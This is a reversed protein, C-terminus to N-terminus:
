QAAMKQGVEFAAGEKTSRVYIRGESFAPTSWCKGAVAKFRGKEVYRAPNPEIHVLEGDDSLAVLHNDVLILNGPGFGPQSWKVKGTKLEVCRVPGDGYEKFQFMGYLFGDKHVPTSWHNAISNGPVMWLETASYKNGAKKIQIASSGVGYGASCYVIDDAVVPSAATSTSYKFPHRWLVTGDAPKVSVLGKQTFFIIQREGHITAPVPTAHTIKDSESKWVTKGDNKNFALLSEGAGGAAVFILDGDVVPSAANKWTINQGKHEKILDRKWIEKGDKAQVAALLLDATLVYVREGDVTPTSRPGDGGKNNGAGANGGDHGYRSTGFAVSWLEKGTDADLAVLVERPVGDADRGVITYARRNQVAFSSFGNPTPVKWLPKFGNAPWASSMKELTKGDHHPGRYQPWDAAFLAVSTALVSLLYNTAKM